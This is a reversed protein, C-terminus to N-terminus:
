LVLIQHSTAGVLALIDCEYFDEQFQHYHILNTVTHGVCTGGNYSRTASPSSKSDFKKSQYPLLIRVYTRYFPNCIYFYFKAFYSVDNRYPVTGTSTRYANKNQKFNKKKKKLNNSQYRYYMIFYTSPEQFQPRLKKLLLNAKSSCLKM